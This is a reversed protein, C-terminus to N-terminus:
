RTLIKELVPTLDRGGYLIRLIEVKDEGVRFLITARREFGMRRLGPVRGPVVTGRAPLTSLSLCFRELRSLYHDATELNTEKAIHCFLEDLDAAAAALFHIEFKKM